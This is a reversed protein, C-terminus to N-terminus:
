DQFITLNIIYKDYMKWSTASTHNNKGGLKIYDYSHEKQNVRFNNYCVRLTIDISKKFKKIKKSQSKKQKKM